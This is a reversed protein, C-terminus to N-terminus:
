LNAVDRSYTIATKSCTRCLGPQVAMSSPLLSSIESNPFLPNTSDIYCFCLASILQATLACSIQRKTKAYAFAPKRM